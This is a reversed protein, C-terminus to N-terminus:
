PSIIGCAATPLKFFNEVTRYPNPADNIPAVPAQALLGPVALMLLLLTHKM